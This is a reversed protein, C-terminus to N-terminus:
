LEGAVRPLGRRILFATALRHELCARFGPKFSDHGLLQGRRVLRAAASARPDLDLVAVALLEHDTSPQFAFALPAPMRARQQDAVVLLALEDVRALDPGAEGVRHQFLQLVQHFRELLRGAWEIDTLGRFRRAEDLWFEHCLDLEHFPRAGTLQACGGELAQTEVFRCALHHAFTALSVATSTLISSRVRLSVLRSFTRYGSTSNVFACTM